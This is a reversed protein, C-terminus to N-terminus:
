YSFIFMYIVYLHFYINTIINFYWFMRYLFHQKINIDMHKKYSLKNIIFILLVVLVLFYTFIISAFFLFGIFMDGKPNFLGIIAWFLTTISTLYVIVNLEVYKACNDIFDILKHFFKM